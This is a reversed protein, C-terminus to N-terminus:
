DKANEGISEKFQAHKDWYKKEDENMRSVDITKHGDPDFSIHLRDKLYMSLAFGVIVGLLLCLFYWM